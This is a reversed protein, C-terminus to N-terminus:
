APSLPQPLAAPAAVPPPSQGVRVQAPNVFRAQLAFAFLVATDFPRGGTFSALFTPIFFYAMFTSMEGAPQRMLRLSDRLGLALFGGYFVLGFIGCDNIAEAIPVDMYMWKYGAGLILKEPQWFLMQQFYGMTTVRYSASADADDGRAGGSATALARVFSDFFNTAYNALLDYVPTKFLVVYTAVGAILLFLVNNPRTLSSSLSRVSLKRFNFFAFLASVVLMCLLMSRTQAMLIAAVSLGLNIFALLKLMLNNRGLLIVSAILGAFGNRAAVHPNGSTEGEGYFITARMGIVYNPNTILSYFLVLNGVLTVLLAMLAFHRQISEPVYALLLIFSLAFLYNSNERFLDLYAQNEPTIHFYMYLVCIFIWGLLLTMLPRNTPQRQTLFGPPIMLVMGLLLCAATFESGQHLREKVFFIIQQGLAFFAIGLAIRSRNLSKLMTLPAFLSIPFRFFAIAPMRM